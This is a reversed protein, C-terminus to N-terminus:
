LTGEESTMTVEIRRKQKLLEKAFDRIDQVSIQNVMQKYNHDFDTKTYLENYLVYDWYENSRINEEYQKLLYNKIKRLSEISPGSESIKEFESYVIPILQKYKDPATRFSIKLAIEPQPYRDLQGAVSVGYTGGQEERVKETYVNRLVQSLIDLKLDNLANYKTKGTYYISVLTSSTEQKRVFLHTENVPRIDTHNDRINEKKGNAPLTALYNCLLPRISDVNVNGILIVTFDSANSFREKYMALIRDYNLQSLTEKELPKLRPNNGYLISTISDGYAVKPNAERNALFSRMRNVISEFARDDRRPSTFYLYTLEFMTKLDKAACAGKIGETNDNVFPSIRVNKGSLTKKLSIADLQGIGAETIASTIFSANPMDKTDFLSSGGKSFMNMSIRDAAFDTPKIYVKLGNSLTILKVGHKGYSKESIIKGSKPLKEILPQNHGKDEYPTYAKNQAEKVYSTFQEESPYKIDAKDPGYVTMVQNKNDILERVKKNIDELSVKAAIEQYAKLKFTPTLMPEADLFNNLCLNVFSSNERKDREKYQSEIRSLFNAKARKLETETFGFQRAREMEGVLATLGQAINSQNCTVNGAMADKTKAIFFSGNRVSASIFPPNPQQKLEQLRTNLMSLILTEKFGDELYKISKKEMDSAPEHKMYLSINVTPQEKDKVMAVIMSDNNNVPYYVRPTPNVPTPINNFLEKIKKEVADVDIDGVVIIAQLDPRYWKHYYDKLDKYPFHDVIDMSGIPLCDEYKTGKYIIPIAEEMMRQIAMGARRTRWEEHIVGREKDIEKNTLLLSHSWDHLILLCSDLVGERTIPASSINYVTQDVSTYANLNTGFKIGVTECWPVIGLGKNDGSFHVTGNFAMHELFHALGRQRPEELISGVQQAIYFDAIKPTKNNYRIYYTLGNTLKGKRIETDQPLSQALAPMIASMLLSVWILKLRM